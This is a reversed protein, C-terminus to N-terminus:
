AVEPFYIRCPLTRDQVQEASAHAEFTLTVVAEDDDTTEFELGSTCLANDLIVIVPKDTGALEGVLGINKLYDKAELKGKGSVVDYNAPATTGDGKAIVGNIAMRLNEATLEKLNIELSANSSVLVQQGVAKSYVGDIEITRYENEIMVKCGGATAGVLEGKWEGGNTLKDFELNKYVAGANILYHKATKDTYGTKKVATKAM